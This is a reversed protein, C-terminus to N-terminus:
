LRIGGRPVNRVTNILKTARARRSFYRADRAFNDQTYRSAM